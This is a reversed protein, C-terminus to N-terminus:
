FEGVMDLSSFEDLPLVIPRGEKQSKYIALVVELANKGAIADVYPKRNNMISEIMDAYLSSHGNGYVNSTPEQLGKNKKDYDTEDAFDWVDINNTSKGGIKVTGKQGFLYLTEELNQPFVNTTGEITAIAGNKFKIVAMGVDEAELYDHFQQRTAGYIESIDDGMVWRLLDIGHICQNMLAGGDQAWTGRWPAQTYYNENRNWRVHISGHSLKGFRGSDIAKRLEQIALNFRNQHCAAVKVGKQNSRKIIENADKISMAMPKEIIVNIGQDICYLAIEAHLGSETAIAVVDPKETNLMEKYDIYKGISENLEFRRFKDDINEQILDCLGVINLENKIAASIHNVSIRGCGILAYKLSM